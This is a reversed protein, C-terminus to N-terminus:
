TQSTHPVIEYVLAIAGEPCFDECTACYACARPRVIRPQGSVMAVAHHPCRKVCLGCGTCRSLDITPLMWEDM